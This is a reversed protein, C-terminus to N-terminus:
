GGGDSDYKVVFADVGGYRGKSGNFHGSTLGVAFVNGTISVAIDNAYDNSTSGPQRTWLRVGAADYKMVFADYSGVSRNGGLGNRTQGAVYVSGLADVAVGNVTTGGEEFQRIWQQSGTADYKVVFGDGLPGLLRITTDGDLVGTTWGGVYVNGNADVAVSRAVDDISRLFEAPGGFTNTWLRTGTADYKVVFADYGGKYTSGHLSGTVLGAVHVNGGADVAVGNAIDRGGAGFQQLWQQGGLADYKAVFADADGGAYTNSNLRGGAGGAVYVNGNIDTAVANISDGGITGIQKTWERVGATDYKVVFADGDGGTFTNGPLSGYTQGVVYVNGTADVAVGFARDLAVTGFQRYWQEVGAANYKVVFADGRGANSLDGWTEGAVYVNGSIDVAVSTAIDDSATGFQKTGTWGSVGAPTAVVHLSDASEGNANSATVVYHYEEGNARGAHIYPSTVNVIQVKNAVTATHWYLTYSTAEPVVSWRITVQADGPTASVGTPVIPPLIGTGSMSVTVKNSSTTPVNFSHSFLGAATPEFQINFTCTAGSPLSRSSCRDQVISFPAPLVPLIRISMGLNGEGTLTTVQISPTGVRRDGFPVEVHVDAAPAVPTANGTTVTITVPTSVSNVKGDNVVLSAVYAGAVDATFTPTATTADTLTATSGAPKSTLTWSYTLIDGDADSSASGNLTVLTGTTVNQISGANAVPAANDVTATITVSASASNAKGDNVVLSAVYAGAIDATFSPTASTADTLTATSGAPKSTLTWTYALSDGDVDSSASGNLTVRTAITVNQISGASAVPSTDSSPSPETGGGCGNLTIAVLSLWIIRCFFSDSFWM